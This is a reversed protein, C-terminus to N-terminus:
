IQLEDLIFLLFAHEDLSSCHAHIQEVGLASLNRIGSIVAQGGGGLFFLRVVRAAEAAASM